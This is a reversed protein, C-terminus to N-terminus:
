PLPSQQTRSPVIFFSSLSYYYLDSTESFSSFISFLLSWDLGLILGVPALRLSVVLRVGVIIGSSRPSAEHERIVLMTDWGRSEMYDGPNDTTLIVRKM